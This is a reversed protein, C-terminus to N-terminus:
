HAGTNVLSTASHAVPLNLLEPIRKQQAISISRSLAQNESASLPAWSRSAPLWLGAEQGNLSQFYLSLRGMRLYNVERNENGILAGSYSEISRGYSIEVSYAELIQRYKEAISIDARDQMAKLRAIRQARENQLFPLDQKILNELEVLMKNLLPLMARDTEELSEIQASLDNIEQEQSGLLKVMQDNYSETVQAQRQNNLHDNVLDKLQDSYRDIKAQSLSSLYHSKDIVEVGEGITAAFARDSLILSLVVGIFVKLLFVSKRM